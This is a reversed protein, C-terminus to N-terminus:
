TDVYKIIQLFPRIITFVLDLAELLYKQYKQLVM